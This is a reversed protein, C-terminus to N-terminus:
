SYRKICDTVEKAFSVDQPSDGDTEVWYADHSIYLLCGIDKEDRNPRVYVWYIGPKNRPASLEPRNSSTYYGCSRLQSMMTEMEAYLLHISKHRLRPVPKKDVFKPKPKKSTTM